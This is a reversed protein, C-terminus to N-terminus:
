KAVRRLDESMADRIGNSQLVADTASMVQDTPIVIPDFWRDLFEITIFKDPCERVLKVMQVLNHVPMGNVSRVTGTADLQVGRALENPLPRCALVVLQEGPFRPSDYRRSLLPSEQFALSAIWRDSAFQAIYERSAVTFVYPGVIFYSPYEGSLPPIVQAPLPVLPSQVSLKKGGQWVELSVAGRQTARQAILGASIRRGDKLQVFCRDDIAYGDIKSVVDWNRLTEPATELRGYVVVGSVNPPVGIFARLPGNELSHFLFGLDPKGDYHGDKIDDLFLRVEETPIAYGINDGNRVNSSAIGILENGIVVAGGSNGPNLAADIQIRLGQVLPGYQTYEVRSVVGKTVSITDVGLPYGLAVVPQNDAPLEDRMKVPTHVRAFEPDDVRLLALDM